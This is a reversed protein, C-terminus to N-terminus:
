GLFCKGWYGGSSPDYKDCCPVLPDRSGKKKCTIEECVSVNYCSTENSIPFEKNPTEVVKVNDFDVEYHKENGLLVFPTSHSKQIHVDVIRINTGFSHKSPRCLGNYYLPDDHLLSSVRATQATSVIPWLLPCDGELFQYAPGIWIPFMTAEVVTINQYLIDHAECKIYIARVTKGMWIDRFTINTAVGHAGLSMGLGTANIREVLWNSGGKVAVCDDGVHINCDYIHVNDGSIDIGDTNFAKITPAIYDNSQAYIDVHHITVWEAELYLTWYPPQKFRLHSIEVRTSLEGIMSFLIPKEDSITLDAFGYWQEGGGLILGTKTSSTFRFGTMNTFHFMPTDLPYDKKRIACSNNADCVGFDLAGQLDLSFNLVNHGEVGSMMPFHGDPIQIYRDNQIHSNLLATNSRAMDLVSLNSCMALSCLSLYTM